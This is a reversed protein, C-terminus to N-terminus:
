GGAACGALYGSAWAWQFNFGGVRGDVDCIEGCLHLGACARSQMTDLHLESLPVGGATAEAFTYGRDAIIPVPLQTFAAILARRQERTLSCVLTEPAVRAHACLADILRAPLAPTTVKPLEPPRDPDTALVDALTAILRTVRQGGVNMLDIELREPTSGPLWNLVLQAGPDGLRTATFYRSVDLIAPGSLGFHTCLVPNTFSELRKGTSARVQVTAVAAVGSLGTLFHGAELRLPVLAPFVAQSISHGLHRALGYGAGDSGTRPLAMGGAALIVRTADLTGWAGTLRFRAPDSPASNPAPAPSGVPADPPVAVHRGLREVATVRAPHRVEVGAEEVGRLLADLVTHANDTVPFLKGTDERKLDVGIERFFEVTRPVDFSRLVKKIANRSSGAYDRQSVEDHTVNCRGGGAVLIKAGLRAAGDLGVIRVRRGRVQATRGAWIAAMLGAAGMGVIAIDTHEPVPLPYHDSGCAHARWPRPEVSDAARATPWRTGGQPRLRARRAIPTFHQWTRAPLVLNRRDRALGSVDPIRATASQTSLRHPQPPPDPRKAEM